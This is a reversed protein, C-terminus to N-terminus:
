TTMEALVSVASVTKMDTTRLDQLLSFCYGLVPSQLHLVHRINRERIYLIVSVLVRLYSFKAPALKACNKVDLVDLLFLIKSGLMDPLHSTHPTFSLIIRPCEPCPGPILPFFDLVFYSNQLLDAVWLYHPEVSGKFTVILDHDDGLEEASPLQKVPDHRLLELDSLQVASEVQSLDTTTHLIKM